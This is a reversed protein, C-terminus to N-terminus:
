AQVDDEPEGDDEDVMLYLPVRTYDEGPVVELLDNSVWDRIPKVTEQSAPRTPDTQPLHAIHVIGAQLRGTPLERWATLMVLDPFRWGPHRYYALAPMPPPVRRDITVAPQDRNPLPRVPEPTSPEPTTM